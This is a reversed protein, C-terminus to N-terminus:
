DKKKNDKKNKNKRKKLSYSYGLGLVFDQQPAAVNIQRQIMYFVNLKSRKNLKYGTSIRLRWRNYLWGARKNQTIMEYSFKPTFKLKKRSYGISFRNRFSNLVADDGLAHDFRVRYELKFRNVKFDYATRSIILQETSNDFPDISYRFSLSSKIRKNVSYAIEPEVFAVKQITANQDLRDAFSLSADWKKSLEKDIQISFWTEFDNNLPSDQAIISCSALTAITFLFAIKLRLSTTYRLNLQIM